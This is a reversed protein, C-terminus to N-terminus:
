AAALVSQREAIPGFSLSLFQAAVRGVPKWAFPRTSGEPFRFGVFYVGAFLACALAGGLLIRGCRRERAEGRLVLLSAASALWAAMPPLQMLRFGGNLPLLLLVLVIAWARAPSVWGRAGAALMLFSCTLATPVAVTIQMGLLFNEANGWHLLLL